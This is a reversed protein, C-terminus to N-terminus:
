HHGPIISEEIQVAVQKGMAGIQVEFSPVDNILM